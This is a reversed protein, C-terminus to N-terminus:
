ARKIKKLGRQELIYSAHRTYRGGLGQGKENRIQALSKEVNNCKRYYAVLVEAQVESLLLDNSGPQFEESAFEASEVPEDTDTDPPESPLNRRGPFVTLNHESHTYEDSDPVERSGGVQVGDMQVVVRRYESQSMGVLRMIDREEYGAARMNQIAGRM